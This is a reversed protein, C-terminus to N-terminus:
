ATVLIDVGAAELLEVGQAARPGTTYAHEYVVRVIGAALLLRACGECPACTSYLTCGDTRVGHRAAFALTNVEAHISRQCGLTVREYDETSPDVDLATASAPRYQFLELVDCGVGEDCCHPMGPPSGNYGTSIIRKDRVLLAGVKGRACTSQAALVKAISMYTEDLSPRGSRREGQRRDPGRTPADRVEMVIQHVPHSLPKGCGPVGCWTGGSKSEFTHREDPM